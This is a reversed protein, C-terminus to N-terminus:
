TTFDAIYTWLLICDLASVGDIRSEVAALKNRKGELRAANESSKQQLCILEELKEVSSKKIDDVYSDLTPKLTAKYDIGMIEAPATGKPNM